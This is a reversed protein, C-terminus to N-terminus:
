KGIKRLIRQVRAAVTYEKVNQTKWSWRLGDPTVGIEADGIAAKIKNRLENRTAELREIQEDVRELTRCWEDSDAPLEVSAGATHQKHRVFLADSTAPSGDVPPPTKTEVLQWFALCQEIHREIFADDREIKRVLLEDTGYMGWLLGYEAGACLIQHQVQVWYGDPAVEEGDKFWQQRQQWGGISKLEDVVLAPGDHHWGDLHAGICDYGSAILPRNPKDIIEGVEEAAWRRIIPEVATGHDLRRQEAPTPQWPIGDVKDLWLSYLSQSAYGCGWLVPADSGGIFKRRTEQFTADTTM